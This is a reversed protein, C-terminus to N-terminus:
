AGLEEFSIGTRTAVFTLTIFNISRAPKIFIDARFENADVVQATNNTEDCVVRFDYIGRRGQVDRLFPEVLSRFQARTFADNFEFLQFKAATAIAKELTIFLRRVNIRNFASEKDLHTKDGFLVFGSGQFGVIPNAGGRYLTDRDAKKPNFALKVANKIQGRNFGAPSFWPDAELDATVCTGATDGNCPIWRYKDNYKDYMYKWGTDFVAYSSRTYSSQTGQISTVESGSNNVVNAKTPSIFVMCDKRVDTINDIIYDGVTASHAGALLLNVDVEEDNAFLDYGAQKDGDAPSGDVGNILSVNIDNSGPNLDDFTVGSAESGWNAGDGLHDMWYIWQSQNNIVNKYFNSENQDNKADSAKSLGAFKELVTGATGTIKGDEDVVIIHLEDYLGGQNTAYQTTVPTYDFNSKYTWDTSLTATATAGTGGGGSLTVSPATLYGAGGFTVTISAVNSGSLAATATAQVSGGDPAAITVTPASSYGSGGATVAISAVSTNGYTVVDAVGVALSNGLTGPYKAAWPGVTAEGAEYSAEYSDLNRIQVATGSTVANRGASGVERVVKLASGYALFSAATLFDTSTTDTPKGFRNVLNNESDITIIERAPGWSFDGVFGGITTGVAPVVNTADQEQVLVGPSLQFAM